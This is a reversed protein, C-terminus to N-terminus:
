EGNLIERYIEVHRTAIALPHFRRGAEAKAAVALRDRLPSDTLLRKIAERMSEANRPDFLLGTRGHDILDPIGGVRSAAAPVGAAMAELVTMPCNDELSPLVLAAATAFCTQLEARGIMGEYSCWARAAVREHFGRGYEPEVAGFFRVRFDIADSLPTVADIFANQNKRADVTAVCLIEPPTVPRRGTSFFNLDAANPVVWTKPVDNAVADRTYNTICVVGDFRPVAFGEIVSQLRLASMPKAQLLKAILRLNGHITLIKPYPTLAASIACERETGQAHVLDPKIDALKRRVALICGSYGTRLWGIKPVHLSHFWINPALKEPSRMARQTCSIVHIEPIPHSPPFTNFDSPAFTHLNSPETISPNRAQDGETSGWERVKEGESMGVKGCEGGALLGFGTFLGQPATGFYPEDRDYNREIERNDSTLIAVRM